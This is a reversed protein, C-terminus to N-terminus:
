SFMRIRPHVREIFYDRKRRLSTLSTLLLGVVRMFFCFVFQNIIIFIFDFGDFAPTGKWFLAWGEQDRYSEAVLWM